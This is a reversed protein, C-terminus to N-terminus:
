RAERGMYPAFDRGQFRALSLFRTSSQVSAAHVLWFGHLLGVSWLRAIGMDRSQGSGHQSDGRGDRARALDAAKPRGGECPLFVVGVRRGVALSARHVDM